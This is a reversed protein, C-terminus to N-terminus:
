QEGGIYSACRNNARWMERTRTDMFLIVCSHDVCGLRAREKTEKYFPCAEGKRAHDSGRKGEQDRAAFQWESMIVVAGAAETRRKRSEM